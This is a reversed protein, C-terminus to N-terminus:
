GHARSLAQLALQAAEVEIHAPVPALGPAVENQALWELTLGLVAFHLLVPEPSGANLVINLPHGDGLVVVTPGEPLRYGIVKDTVQDVGIAANRIGPVDIEDGGHGANLLVLGERSGRLMPVTLVHSRGTCTVAIGVRGLCQELDPTPFGDYHCCLARVPDTEVVEVAAGAARAYAAVGRGVPGYGIVGVRRGSLHMGTLAQVAHWLGEGVGHRNEVAYKLRSDNINVIG